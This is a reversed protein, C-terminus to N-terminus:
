YNGWQRPLEPWLDRVLVFPKNFWRGVPIGATLPYNYCILDYKETFILKLGWHM